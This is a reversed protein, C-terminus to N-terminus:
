HKTRRTVTPPWKAYWIFIAPKSKGLISLWISLGCRPCGLLASSGSSFIFVPVCFMLLSLSDKITQTPSPPPQNKKEEWLLIDQNNTDCNQLFLLLKVPTVKEEDDTYSDKLSWDITNLFEDSRLLLSQGNGKGSLHLLQQRPLPMWSDLVRWPSLQLSLFVWGCCCWFESMQDNFRHGQCAMPLGSNELKKRHWRSNLIIWDWVCHSLNEKSLYLPKQMGKFFLCPLTFWLWSSSNCGPFWVINLFSDSIHLSVSLNLLSSKQRRCQSRLSVAKWKVWPKLKRKLNLLLSIKGPYLWYFCCFTVVILVDVTFSFPCSSCPLFLSVTFEYGTSKTERFGLKLCVELAERAQEWISALFCQERSLSLFGKACYWLM